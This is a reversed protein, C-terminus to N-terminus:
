GEEMMALIKDFGTQGIMYVPVDVKPINILSMSIQAFAIVDVRKALGELAECVMADHREVDGSCLVDFAGDVVVPELAVAKGMERAKERIVRGIAAPSTPLTGLIGIRTGNEVALEAVPEEINLIPINLLPRIYKTAQNVSTCTVLVGSAGSAEAAKAYNLMRSAIAPTMGDYIRTEELLSDDMINYIKLDPHKEEFPKAFPDYIMGM